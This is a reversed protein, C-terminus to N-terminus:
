PNRLVPLAIGWFYFNAEFTIVASGSARQTSTIASFIPATGSGWYVTRMALGNQGDTFSAYDSDVGTNPTTVNDVGPSVTANIGGGGYATNLTYPGAGTFLDLGATGYNPTYAIALANVALALRFTSPKSVTTTCNTTIHIVGGQIVLPGKNTDDINTFAVPATAAEGTWLVQTTDVLSSTCPVSFSKAFHGYFNSASGFWANPDLGTPIPPKLRPDVMAGQSLLVPKQTTM